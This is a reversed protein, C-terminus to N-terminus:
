ARASARQLRDRVALWAEEPPPLEFCIRGFGAEDLEHLLAYLGTAAEAPDASLSFGEIGDPLVPLPGLSVYATRKSGASIGTGPTVLELKAKPAYHRATTGPAVQVEGTAAAGQWLVVPGLLEELDSPALPGPRLIRYPEGRLDLITSEIGARTPGADLVLDVADGLSSVVHEALTPSLRTSRNASPAALPRGTKRVLSLAVPHAPCRLAVSPGGGRVISPVRPDADLILTLPGPWFRAALRSAVEPWDRVLDAAEAEGAVHLILPNTAPRGKAAYIRAVAEPNLGDAGLGYVTETPFAVLAGSRLLAAAEDLVPDDPSSVQIVRPM